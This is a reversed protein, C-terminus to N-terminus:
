HKVGRCHRHTRRFHIERRWSNGSHLIRLVHALRVNPDLRHMILGVVFVVMFAIGAVICARGGCRHLVLVILYLGRAFANLAVTAMVSQHRAAYANEPVVIHVAMVFTIPRRRTSDTVGFVLCDPPLVVFRKPWAHIAAIGTNAGCISGDPVVPTGVHIHVCVRGHVLTNVAMPAAVVLLAAPVAIGHAPSGLCIFSVISRM